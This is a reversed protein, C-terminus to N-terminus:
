NLHLSNDMDMAKMRAEREDIGSLPIFGDAEWWLDIEALRYYLKNDDEAIEAKIVTYTGGFVPSTVKRADFDDAFWINEICIVKM